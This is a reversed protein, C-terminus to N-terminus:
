PFFARSSISCVKACKSALKKVSGGGKERSEGARRLCIPTSSVGEIWVGRVIGRAVDTSFPFDLHFNFNVPDFFAGAPAEPSELESEDVAKSAWLSSSIDREPKSLACFPWILPFCEFFM